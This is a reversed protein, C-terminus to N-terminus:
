SLWKLSGSFIFPSNTKQLTQLADVRKKEFDATLSETNHGSLMSLVDGIRWADFSASFLEKPGTRPVTAFVWFTHYLVSLSKGHYIVTISMSYNLSIFEVAFNLLLSILYIV